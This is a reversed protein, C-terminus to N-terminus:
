QKLTMYTPNKHSYGRLGIEHGADRVMACEDPFAELSHGPIFWIAKMNNNEILKLLLRNWRYWYIAM